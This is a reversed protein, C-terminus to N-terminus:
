AMDQPMLRATIQLNVQLFVGVANVADLRVSLVNGVKEIKRHRRRYEFSDMGEKMQSQSEEKPIDVLVVVVAVVVVVVVVVLLSYVWSPKNPPSHQQVIFM